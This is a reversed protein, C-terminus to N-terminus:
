ARRKTIVVPNNQPGAFFFPSEGCIWRLKDQQNFLGGFIVDEIVYTGGEKLHAFLNQFTALQSDLLHSGDDIIIDFKHHKISQMFRDIQLKDTSDCLFTVIRAEDHFQTDAQVDIGYITANPFFERWTRLSGGPKYGDLAFGVMTSHAAPIMTGIGIELVSEIQLRSKRFLSEYLDAYGNVAKDTKWKCFISALSGVPTQVEDAASPCPDRYLGGEAEKDPAPSKQEAVPPPQFPAGHRRLDGIPGAAVSPPRVVDRIAARVEAADVTAVFAERDAVGYSILLREACPSRALGAAFEVGLRDFFFPASAGRLEDNADFWVFRHQYYRRQEGDRQRVEHVLALWGGDFAIAQSGGRFRCSTISPATEAVYCANEDLVRVPDCSCIFRLREGDIRPMWNKEHQRPYKAHLTRWDTLRCSDDGSTDLRALVQECWGEPSLERVCSLSWLEGRWAFLRMDEFGRVDGYRPAPVDVPPLVEVCSQVELADNLRLLFNRTHVPEGPPLEYYAREEDLRYNVSRLLLFLEDGLRAISPNLPYYGDPPACDIKRATFSPAIACLPQLYFFLNSWALDRSGAPAARSLALWDCAAFGRAKRAMDPAYNASISYEELLGTEYVFSEIFLIDHKPRPLALGAESYLASVLNMGRERYFKALEYLSEARHPRENYALLAQHVFGHDDGLQRLCRAHQLRAHWAEEDWGGMQARKAYSQAAEVVRGADRYSQALYYLYRSNEPEDRLGQSLLRIDREFKDVRNSGSAHDRFWLGSLEAAGGPIDLYEHTVGCYRAGAGRQALRANWYSLGGDARQLVNYGKASLEERFGPAEVVLEMDADAFLLYDYALASAAARDLAANRAQEFTEFPFSHLEGPINRAAFFARIFDQTGDTSGTDCIVWCSVHAAVSALCRALNATENKVIMNLCLSKVTTM